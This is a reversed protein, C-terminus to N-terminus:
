KPLQGNAGRGAVDHLVVRCYVDPTELGRQLAHGALTYAAQREGVDGGVRGVPALAACAAGQKREAGNGGLVSLREEDLIDHRIVHVRQDLVEVAFLKRAM